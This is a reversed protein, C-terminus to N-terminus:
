NIRMPRCLPKQVRLVGALHHPPTPPRAVKEFNKRSMV